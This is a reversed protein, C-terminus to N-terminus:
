GMIRAVAAAQQKFLVFEEMLKTRLEKDRVKQIVSQAQDIDEDISKIQTYIVQREDRNKQQLKQIFDFMRKKAFQLKAKLLIEPQPDQVADYQIDLVHEGDVAILKLVLHDTLVAQNIVTQYTMEIDFVTEEEDDEMKQEPEKSEEIEAQPDRIQEEKQRAIYTVEPASEDEFGVVENKLSFKLKAASQLAIDLQDMLSNNLEDRWGDNYSDIFAFNGQENGMNAIRNM